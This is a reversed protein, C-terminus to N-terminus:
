AGSRAGKIADLLAPILEKADGVLGLQAAEFIPAKANNNIALITGSAIGALHQSAGSIGVAVYLEPSVVRGTLGVQRSPPAWGEDVAALSAGVVGGLADALQKLGEFADAGGVGRGGSVVVKADELRGEEAQPAITELVQVRPTVPLELRDVSGGSAAPPAEFAKARLSVVVPTRMPRLRCLAKGGFVPRTVSVRGERVEMATANNVAVGELRAALIPAVQRGRDDGPLLVVSAENQRALAELQAAISEVSGDGGQVAVAKVGRAAADAAADEVNGGLAAFLVPEALSAALALAGGLAELGPADPSKGWGVAIVGSM